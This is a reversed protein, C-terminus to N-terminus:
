EMMFGVITESMSLKNHGEEGEGIVHESHEIRYFHKISIRNNTFFSIVKGPL